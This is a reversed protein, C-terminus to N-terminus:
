HRRRRRSSARNAPAARRVSVLAFVLALAVGGLLGASARAPAYACSGDSTPRVDSADGADLVDAAVESTADPIVPASACALACRCAEPGSPWIRACSAGMACATKEDCSSTFASPLLGDLVCTGGAIPNCRMAAPCDADIACTQNCIAPLPVAGSPMGAPSSATEAVFPDVFARVADVRVDLADVKCATDGAVTVGVLQEPGGDAGAVFVPGGSDGTCSMAPGPVARFSAAGISAITTPGQRKAGPTSGTTGDIGFGVVRASVGVAAVDLSGMTVPAIGPDDGLRLLAIDFEHTAKDYSPHTRTATVAFFRGGGKGADTGVYIELASGRELCHAATLVVRPAVLTGTCFPEATFTACDTRRSVIAVVAPDDADLMGGVVPASTRELPATEVPDRSACGSGLAACAALSAAAVRTTLDSRRRRM